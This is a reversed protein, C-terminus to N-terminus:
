RRERIGVQGLLNLIQQVVAPSRTELKFIWFVGIAVAVAPRTQVRGDVGVVIVVSIPDHPLQRHVTALVRAFDESFDLRADLRERIAVDSASAEIVDLLDLAVREQHVSWFRAGRSFDVVSLELCSLKQISLWDKKYICFSWISVSRFVQFMFCVFFTLSFFCVKSTSYQDHLIYYIYRKYDTM